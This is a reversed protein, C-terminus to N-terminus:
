KFESKVTNKGDFYGDNAFYQDSTSTVLWKKAKENYSLVIDYYDMKDELPEDGNDFSHYQRYKAHVEVPVTVQYVKTEENQSLTVHDFDIRTGLANGKWYNQLQVDNNIEEIYKAKFNDDVTTLVNANKQVYAQIDQKAYLNILDVIPKRTAETAFPVPTIDVSSTNEEVTVDPSKELGWPFQQEGHIRITGNFSIPGIEPLDKVTKGIAKGNVFINTNEFNSELNLNSGNLDLDSESTATKEDFASVTDEQSLLAYQYKKEAYTKYNGPMLPGMTYTKEKDTTKFVQKGDVKITAGPENTSIELFYPRIQITYLSYFLPINTRKLYYDHDAGINTIGNEEDNIQTMMSSVLEPLYDENEKSYAILDRIHKDDIELKSDPSHILSSLTNVDGDRVAQEFSAVKDRPDMLYAGAIYACIIICIVGILIFSLKKNRQFFPVVKSTAQKMTNQFDTLQQKPEM